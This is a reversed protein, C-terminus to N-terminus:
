KALATMIGALTVAPKTADFQAFDWKVSSYDHTSLIAAKQKYYYTMVSEIWTWVPDLLDRLADPTDRKAYLGNFSTQTGIDYHSLIYANVDHNIKTLQHAIGPCASKIATIQDVTLDDALTLTAQLQEPQDPLTGDDPVMVYTWGNITTLEVVNEGILTYDTHAAKVKQYKYIM